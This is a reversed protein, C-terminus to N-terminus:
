RGQVFEKYDADWNKYYDKTELWARAETLKETETIVPAYEGNNLWVGQVEEREFSHDELATYGRKSLM